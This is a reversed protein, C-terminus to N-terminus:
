RGVEALWLLEGGDGRWAPLLDEGERRAVDGVVEGDAGVLVIEWGHHGSNDEFAVASVAAGPSRMAAHYLAHDYGVIEFGGTKFDIELFTPRNAGVGLSLALVRRGNDASALLQHVRYPVAVEADIKRGDLRVVRAAAEGPPPEGHQTQIAFAVRGCGLALPAAPVTGGNAAGGEPPAWLREPPAEGGLRLRVLEAPAGGALPAGNADLTAARTVLLTGDSEWAAGTAGRTGAVVVSEGVTASGDAGIEVSARRVEFTRDVFGAPGRHRRLAQRLGPSCTGGLFTDVLTSWATCPDSVLAFRAMGAVPPPTNPPPTNPPPADAEKAAVDDRHRTVRLWLAEEEPFGALEKASLRDQVLGKRSAPESERALLAPCAGDPATPREPHGDRDCDRAVALWVREGEPVGRVEVTLRAESGRVLLANPEIEVLLPAEAAGAVAATAVTAGLATSFTLVAAKGCRGIWERGQRM